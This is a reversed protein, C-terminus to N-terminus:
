KGNQVEGMYRAWLEPSAKEKGVLKLYRRVVVDCYKPDIEIGFCRRNLAECALLISGSGLFTDLVIDGIKSSNRVSRQRLAVPKQTPHEYSKTPERKVRWVNSEGPSGAFYHPAGNLWGYLCQESQFSYDAYSIAASEKVWAIVCSIHFDLELLIQYMPPFQRHGQWIYIASGPHLYQKVNELIKRMWSEYEAQPMNDSYIREWEKSDKPRGDATPRDGGMYNVNYPMDFDALNVKCGAMLKKLAEPNASDGCLIRHKGLEILEGFQTVPKEVSAFEADPDFDDDIVACNADFIESVEALDFGTEEINFDPIASLEKLVDALKEEDWDGRVKNLILNLQKEKQIPLDVVSVEVEQVGHALLIKFRQHGSILTKTRQNWVLPELYGFEDISKKLKEYDSDGPQLDIRPNYVAPNIEIIPVTQIKM